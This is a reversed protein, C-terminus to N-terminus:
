KNGKNQLRVQEEIVALIDSLVQLLQLPELGDFTILNFTKNFPSKTLSTVLFKLQDTM